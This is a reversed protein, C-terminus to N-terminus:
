RAADLSRAVSAPAPRGRRRAPPSTRSAARGHEPHELRCRAAVRAAFASFLPPILPRPPWTGGAAFTGFSAPHDKLRRFDGNASRHDLWAKLVEEFIRASYITPAHGLPLARSKPDRIRHNSDVRGLWEVRRRESMALRSRLPGPCSFPRSRLRLPSARLAGPAWVRYERQTSM